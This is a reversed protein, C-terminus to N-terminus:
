VVRAVPLKGGHIVISDGARKGMLQQGLPSNPTIITIVVGGYTVETGGAKPGIFYVQEDGGNGLTVLAGVDIAGTPPFALLSLSEFEQRAEELEAIKRSQGHALYSAELARTDYKNEAKNQEHTAEAHSAKASAILIRLDRSIQAVVLEIIEQKEFKV